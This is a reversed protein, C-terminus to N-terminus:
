TVKEKPRRRTFLCGCCENIVLAVGLIPLVALVVLLVYLLGMFTWAILRFDEGTAELIGAKLHEGVLLIGDLWERPSRSRLITSFRHGMVLSRLQCTVIM